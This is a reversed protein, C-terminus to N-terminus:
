EHDQGGEQYYRSQIQFLEAYQGNLALLEEHTGEELIQGQGLLIIRDCFRTSALRHSIFLSTKGKTMKNYKTYIDHEALPDLASTPEDLVLIPADKYLARALLLRQTLGGSLMIGDLHVERGLHTHIGRPMAAIKETLGAHELCRSLKAKDVNGCSLTVNEEVTADMISYEQFVACFLQYYEQRNFQRIDVDNLLVAGENPDYMGCLLNVLTTKGTGNLGVVALKEGPNITLNLNQFLPEETGPYQFTVNQLKLCYQEVKPVPIGGQFVFPEPLNLYEQVISLEINERRLLALHNLIVVLRDTFESIAKFYLLFESAPMGTQLAVYILYGYAIGNRLLQMALNLFDGLLVVKERRNLYDRYLLFASDYISDLWPKLGFIRIDKAVSVSEAQAKVYKIKRLCESEEEKHKYMWADLRRQLLFGCVTTLVSVLILIGNLHTLLFLYIVFCIVSYIIEQLRFWFVETTSWYGETADLATALLKQAYEDATNPFSTTGAKYNIASRIHRRVDIQHSRTTITKSDLTFYRQLGVLLSISLFFFAVTGVIEGVPAAAEIKSLIGKAVYLRLLDLAVSLIVIAGTAFLVGKRVRWATKIMFSINQVINYKPKKKKMTEGGRM